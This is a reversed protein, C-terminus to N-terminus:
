VEYMFLKLKMMFAFFLLWYNSLALHRYKVKISYNSLPLLLDDPLENLLKCSQFLAFQKEIELRVVPLNIRRNRTDYSHTPLLPLYYKNFLEHNRYLALHLFKLLHFKYIDDFKLLKLSKYMDNVSMRPINNEDRGVKLICRLINNLMIKINNVNAASIGGWILISQTLILYVLSHYITLLTKQPVLSSLSYSVGHM